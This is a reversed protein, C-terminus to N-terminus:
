TGPRAPGGPPTTPAPDVWDDLPTGPYVPGCREVAPNCGPIVPDVPDVPDVAGGNNITTTSGSGALGKGIRDYGWATAGAQALGVVGDVTKGYRYDSSYQQTPVVTDSMEAFEMNCYTCAKQPAPANYASYTPAPAPQQIVRQTVVPAIAVQHAVPPCKYVGDRPDRDPAPCGPM